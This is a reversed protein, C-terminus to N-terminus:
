RQITLKEIVIPAIPKNQYKTKVSSIQLAVDLGKTVKGFVSHKGNLWSTGGNKTVIFFQSGNTNPGSNAMSLAGQEHTLLLNGKDDRPFEDAFKYGPDGTGNGLPCGGQIMFNKIVRHFILGDYFPKKVKNGTKPDTWEKTGEALGIFNAVTKPAKDEFLEIEITGLTTKMIAKPNKAFVTVSVILVVLLFVFKKM